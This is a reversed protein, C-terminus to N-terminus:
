STFIIKKSKRAEERVLDTLAIEPYHKITVVNDKHHATSLHKIGGTLVTGCTLENMYLGHKACDTVQLVKGDETVLALIGHKNFIRQKFDLENSYGDFLGLKGNLKLIENATEVAERLNETKKIIKYKM